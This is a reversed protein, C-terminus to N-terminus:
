DIAAYAVWYQTGNSYAKTSKGMDRLTSISAVTGPRHGHFLEIGIVQNRDPGEQIGTVMGVHCIGEPIKQGKALPTYSFFLLMGPRVQKASKHPDSVLELNGIKHYYAALARSGRCSRDPLEFNSCRQELSDFLRHMMGSCDTGKRADYWISDRSLRNAIEPVWTDLNKKCSNDGPLTTLLLVSWIFSTILM